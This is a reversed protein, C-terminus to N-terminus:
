ISSIVERLRERYARLFPGQSCRRKFYEDTIQDYKELDIEPNYDNHSRVLGFSFDDVGIEKIAFDMLDNFYNKNFDNYTSLVILTIHPYRDTIKKSSRITDIWKQFAGPRRTFVDMNNGLANLSFHLRLNKGSQEGFESVTRLLNEKFTGNTPLCIVDTDWDNAISIVIDPIDKRTFPEGGGIYVRQLKKIYKGMERIEEASLEDCKKNLNDLVYCHRCRMNCSNTVMYTLEVLRNKIFLPICNKLLNM